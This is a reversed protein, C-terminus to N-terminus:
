GGLSYSLEKTPLTQQRRRGLMGHRGGQSIVPDEGPEQSSNDGWFLADLFAFCFQFFSLRMLVQNLKINAALFHMLDNSLRILSICGPPREQQLESAQSCSASPM